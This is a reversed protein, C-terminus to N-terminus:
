VKRGCRPPTSPGRGRRPFAQTHAEPANAPVAADRRGYRGGGDGLRRCELCPRPQPWQRRESKGVLAPQLRASPPLEFGIVAEVENFSTRWEQIQLSSLYTYLRQYKGRIVMERYKDKQDVAM